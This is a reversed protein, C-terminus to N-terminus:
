RATSTPAAAQPPYYGRMMPTPMGNYNNNSYPGYEGYSGYGYYDWGDMMMPYGHGRWGFNGYGWFSRFEGVKVGFWFAALIIFIGLVIRLVSWKGCWKWATEKGNEHNEM